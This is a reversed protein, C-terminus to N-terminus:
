GLQYEFVSGQSTQVWTKSSNRCSEHGLEHANVLLEKAGCKTSCFWLMRINAAALLHEWNATETTAIAKTQHTPASM